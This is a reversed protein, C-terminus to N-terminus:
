YNLSSNLFIYQSSPLNRPIDACLVQELRFYNPGVPNLELATRFLTIEFKNVSKMVFHQPASLRVINEVGKEWAIWYNIDEDAEEWQVM